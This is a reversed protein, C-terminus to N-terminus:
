LRVLPSWGHLITGDVQVFLFALHSDDCLAALYNVAPNRRRTTVQGREEPTAGVGADQDLGRSFTFPYRLVQLRQPVVHHDGIGIVCQHVPIPASAHLGIAAIYRRQDLRTALAHISWGMPSRRLLPVNLPLAIDSALQHSRASATNGERTRDGSMRSIPDGASGCFRKQLSDGRQWPGRHEVLAERWDAIDHFHNVLLKRAHVGVELAQDRVVRHDFSEGGTGADPRDSGCGNHGGDIVDASKRPPPTGGLDGAIEAPDRPLVAGAFLLLAAPHHSTGLGYTWDNSTWAAKRTHRDESGRTAARRLQACAISRRRPLFIAITANARRSARM